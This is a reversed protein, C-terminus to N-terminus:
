CAVKSEPRAMELGFSLDSIPYEREDLKLSTGFEYLLRIHKSDVGNTEMSKAERILRRLRHDIPIGLCQM